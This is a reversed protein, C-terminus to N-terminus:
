NEPLLTVQVYNDKNFYQQFAARVSDATVTDLSAPFGLIDAAGPNVGNSWSLALQGMWFGNQELNQEYTQLLAQRTNALETDTPGEEKLAEIEAFLVATLEEARAPDSGFNIIINYSPIPQFLMQRSVGVTYTGGLEERMVDRLRTQLVETTVSLTTRADQNNTDFPGNFAIRTSSQPEVGRRVTETFVGTPNRIGVDAWTEQRGSVPLGGIYTEVLPQMQELDLNGVFIFIAGTADGLRDQYFALSKDLDTQDIVEPTPPQRRPHDQFMLRTFADELAVAPAATRNALAARSQTKFVDFFTADARPATMRLYILQMLTELDAPSGQGRVGEEFDGIYPLVTAIKGTLKRQLAIGDFAGLGGNAIVTVATSAPIYDADSALSTGGPSFGTFLIEDEKFDTDKLIVKIGNGLTWEVLDGDLMRTETVPSGQPLTALLPADSTNDELAVLETTTSGAIVASLEAETPPTLGAKEPAIVSVVRNSNAAFSQGVANVEELTIEPVFRMYLATEFPAGPVSEGTLYARILESAHSSSPRSNRNAYGQESGRQLATKMRELEAETFGFRAVREAEAFLAELGRVVGTEQVSAMMGHTSLARVMGVRTSAATLFPPNAQRAIEQLRTSLMADYLTEVLRQRYGGATWDYDAPKKDYVIVQTNPVEPDTAIAFLTDAHAPVEYRTRERPNVSAPIADFHEHVLREIEDADFSGVAIVAMLEPRYWEDYFRRLEEPTFSQLSELTGIPLRQAYRSDKFLVPIQKDRIRTQAGQGLRWEEIVVGREKEIEAPDLTLGTAWDDLIQFATTLYEPKSTPVQLMYITEDFSTSANIEPGMRMGISKTFDILEQKAFNETGNFAMHELFHALGLQSDDELVSGVDVVLRLEARNGPEANERIYYTLGNDLKGTRLEPSTPLPQDLAIDFAERPLSRRSPAQAQLEGAFALLAALASAHVLLTRIAVPFASAKLM